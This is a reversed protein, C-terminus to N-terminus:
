QRRSTDDETATDLAAPRRYTYGGRDMDPVVPTVPPQAATQPERALFEAMRARVNESKATRMLDLACEIAAVRAQARLQDVSAVAERQVREVHAAVAPRALAKRFGQESMGAARCAASVTMGKRYRGDISRRLKESLRPTQLRNMTRHQLVTPSGCMCQRAQRTSAPLHFIKDSGDTWWCSRAPSKGGVGGERDALSFAPAALALRPDTSWAVQSIPNAAGVVFCSAILNAILRSFGALLM